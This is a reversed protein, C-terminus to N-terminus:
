QWNPHSFGSMFKFKIISRPNAGNFYCLRHDHWNPHAFRLQCSSAIFRPPNLGISVMAITTLKPTDLRLQCSISPDQHIWAGNFFAHANSDIQHWGWQCSNSSSRPPDFGNHVCLLTDIDIKINNRFHRVLRYIKHNVQFLMPPPNNDIPHTLRLQCSISSPDQHILGWQFLM